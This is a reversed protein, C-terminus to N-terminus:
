GSGLVRYACVYAAVFSEIVLVKKKRSSHMRGTYKLTLDSERQNKNRLNLSVSFVEANRGSLFM